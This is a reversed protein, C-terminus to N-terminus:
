LTAALDALQEATVYDYGTCKEALPESYVNWLFEDGQGLLHM